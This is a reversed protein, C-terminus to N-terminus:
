ADEESDVQVAETEEVNMEEITALGSTVMQRIEMITCVNDAGSSIAYLADEIRRILAKSMVIRRRAARQHIDPRYQQQILSSILVLVGLFGVVDPTLATQIFSSALVGGVIYQGFRLTGAAIGTWRAITRQRAVEIRVDILRSERELRADDPYQGEAAINSATVRQGGLKVLEPTLISVLLAAAVAVVAGLVGAFVSPNVPSPSNVFFYTALTALISLFSLVLFTSLLRFQQVKTLRQFIPLRIWQKYISWLVFTVVAGLGSVAVAINWFSNM